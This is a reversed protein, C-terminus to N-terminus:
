SGYPNRRRKKNLARPESDPDAVDYVSSPLVTLIGKDSFMRLAQSLTDVWDDHDSNPFTCVEEMWEKSWDAFQRKGDPASERVQADTLNKTSSSEPIWVLGGHPIHSVIHMRSIKDARGPNYPYTVIKYKALTQRLSIGSGKDELLLVDVRKGKGSIASPVVGYMASKILPKEVAGYTLKMEKRVRAVLEPFGLHDRWADLLMVHMRYKVKEFKGNAVREVGDPMSFAGFISCASFDPEGKKEDYTDDTLATDLSMVIYEFRPLGNKMPWLNFWSRKVIGSEEPDILEGHIEQRGITTGEYQIVRDFFKPALNQKNEYTSGRTLVTTKDRNIKRVLPVPRPTTTVIVFPRMGSGDDLRLGFMLNNWCDEVTDKSFAALEDCWAGHFQPGRLRNPREGSFGWISSGNWLYLVPFSRNYDRDSYCSPPLNALIGSEGEFCTFRVDDYTPSVVAWRTGPRTGAQWIVEEAGLRTKGYGRGCQNLWVQWWDGGPMLQKPRAEAIWNARHAALAARPDRIVRQVPRLIEATAM